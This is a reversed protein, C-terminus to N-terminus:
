SPSRESGHSLTRPSVPLERLADLVLAETLLQPLIQPDSGDAPYLVYLPVGNRGFSELLATISGDRNTWDGKMYTIGRREFADGIKRSSLAVRENVLCTICWAATMNLFVAQGDARLAALRKPDYPEFPLGAKSTGSTTTPASTPPLLALPLFALVAIAAAAGTAVRRAVKKASGAAHWIWVAFAISVLGALAAAVGNPGAQLSLVWVLWAASAYLPFALAQKMREMWPGPKPLRRSLAPFLTLLLYPLALGFGLVLFVGLSMAADQTLAFGIAAGMFPATCPTAVVAALVGTFFSGAYGSRAALRSGIGMISGGVTVFGSLSLGLFFLLYAMIAVFLPSQLQFGWGVSEGGAKLAILVSALATFCVLIGATYAIGHMRLTAHDDQAHQLLALAKMSLVPFVCPMLNLILGGILAFLLAEGIGISIPEAPAAGAAAAIPAAIPASITLGRTVTGDGTNSTLVLVGELPGAPAAAGPKMALTIGKADVSLVQPAAPEVVGWAAPFFHASEIGGAELDVAALSLSIEADSKAHTAPWLSEVPLLARASAFLETKEPDTTMGAPGAPLTLAFAAQEPICTKECVLWHAEAEIPLPKDAPWSEPVRIEALHFAEGEYGYNTLPGLPLPHPYPWQIPGATVGAPLKWDIRTAEGSDGPNQWYTHWGDRIKFHLLMWIRAGPEVSSQEAILQATVNETSVANASAIGTASAWALLVALCSILTSRRFM